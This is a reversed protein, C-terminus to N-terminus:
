RSYLALPDSTLSALSQDIKRLEAAINAVRTSIKMNFHDCLGPEEKLFSLMTQRSIALATVQTRAIITAGSEIEVFMGMEHILSGPALVEGSVAGQGHSCVAQGSRILISEEVRDGIRVLREGPRYAVPMTRRAIETVILPPLGQFLEVGRLVQVIPNAPPM